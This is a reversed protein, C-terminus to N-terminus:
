DPLAPQLSALASKFEALEDESLDVGTETIPTNKCAAPLAFDEDTVTLTINTHSIDKKMQFCGDGGCKQVVTEEVPICDRATVDFSHSGDLTRQQFVNVELTDDGSGMFYSYAYSADSPVGMTPFLHDTKMALCVGSDFSFFYIENKSLFATVLFHVYTSSQVGLRADIRFRQNVMDFACDWMNLGGDENPYFEVMSGTYQLPYKCPTPGTAVVTTAFVFSLFLAALIM